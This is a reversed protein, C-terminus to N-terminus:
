DVSSAVSVTITRCLMAVFLPSALTLYGGAHFSTLEVLSLIILQLFLAVAVLWFGPDVIVFKLKKFSVVCATLFMAILAFRFFISSYYLLEVRQNWTEIKQTTKINKVGIRKTWKSPPQSEEYNAPPYAIMIPFAAGKLKTFVDGIFMLRQDRNHGWRSPYPLYGWAKPACDFKLDENACLLSIDGRLQELLLQFNDPSDVNPQSFISDRLAWMLWGGAYEGCAEGHLECGFRQWGPNLDSLVRSLQTNPATRQIEQLTQMQVPVWPKPSQEPIAISVLDQYFSKFNGEEFENSIFRGYKAQNAYSVFIIPAPILIIFSLVMVMLYRMSNKLPKTFNKSNLIMLIISFFVLFYVYARAERTILLFGFCLGSLFLPILVKFNSAFVNNNNIDIQNFRNDLALIVLTIALLLFPIYTEERLLRLGSSTFQWPDFLLALYGLVRWYIWVNKMAFTCFFWASLLYLSSLWLGPHVGVRHSLSMQISHFPGKALTFSDYHDGLWQNSAIKVALKQFLTDDHPLLPTLSPMSTMIALYIASILLSVFVWSRSLEFIRFQTIKVAM